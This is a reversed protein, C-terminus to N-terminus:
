HRVHMKIWSFLVNTADSTNDGLHYAETQVYYESVM